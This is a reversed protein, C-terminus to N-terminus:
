YERNCLSKPIWRKIGIKRLRAGGSDCSTKILIYKFIRSEASQKAFCHAQLHVGDENKYVVTPKEINQREVEESLNLFENVARVTTKPPSYDINFVLIVEKIEIGFPLEVLAFYEHDKLFYKNVERAEGPVFEADCWDPINGFVIRCNASIESKYFLPQHQCYHATATMVRERALKSLAIGVLNSRNKPLQLHCHDQYLYSINKLSKQNVAIDYLTCFKIDKKSCELALKDNFYACLNNREVESSTLYPVTGGGCHPGSITIEFGYGKLQVLFDLCNDITKDAINM